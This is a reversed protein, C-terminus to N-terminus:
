TDADGHAKVGKQLKRGCLPCYAIELLGRGYERASNDYSLFAGSQDDIFQVGSVSERGFLSCFDDAATGAGVGRQKMTLFKKAECFDCM